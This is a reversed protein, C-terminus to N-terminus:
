RPFQYAKLLEGEMAGRVQVDYTEPTIELRIYTRTNGDRPNEVSGPNLILIGEEQRVDVRHTHGHCIITPLPDFTKAEKILRNVNIRTLYFHGHTVWVHDGTPLTLHVDEEYNYTDSDSNGQVISFREWDYLPFESDGCHLYHAAEPHRETILYLPNLGGHSDSVIIIEM